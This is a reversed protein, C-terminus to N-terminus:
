VPKFAFHKISKNNELTSFLDVFRNEAGDSFWILSLHCTLNRESLIFRSEVKAREGWKSSSSVKLFTNSWFLNELILGSFM